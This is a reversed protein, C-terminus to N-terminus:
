SWQDVIAGQTSKGSNQLSSVLSTIDDQSVNGSQAKDLFDLVFQPTSNDTKSTSSSSGDNQDKPKEPPKFGAADMADRVDKGPKIGAKKLEDMMTKMGDQSISSADYKSLITTLEKKQDDTLKTDSDAPRSYQM